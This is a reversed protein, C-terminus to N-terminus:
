VRPLILCAPMLCTMWRLSSNSIATQVYTQLIADCHDKNINVFGLERTKDTYIFDAAIVKFSAPEKEKEIASSMEVVTGIEKEPSDVM